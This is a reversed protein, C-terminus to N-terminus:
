ATKKLRSQIQGVAWLAEEKLPIAASIRTPLKAGCDLVIDYWISDGMTTGAQVSASRIQEYTLTSGFRLGLLSRTIRLDEARLAVSVKQLNSVLGIALSLLGLGSFGLAMVGTFFYDFLVTMILAFLSEQALSTLTLKRIFCVGIASFILGFFALVWNPRRAASRFLLTMGEPTDMVKFSEPRRTGFDAVVQVAQNTQSKM